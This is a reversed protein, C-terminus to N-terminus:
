LLQPIFFKERLIGMVGCDIQTAQTLAGTQDLGGSVICVPAQFDSDFARAKTLAEHYMELMLLLLAAAAAAAATTIVPVQENHGIGYDDYDDDGDM